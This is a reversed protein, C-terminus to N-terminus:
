SDCHELETYQVKTWHYTIPVAIRPFAENGDTWGTCCMAYSPGARNVNAPRGAVLIWHGYLADITGDRRKLEIWLNLFYAWDHDRWAVPYALPIKFVGPEPYSYDAPDFVICSGLVFDSRCM